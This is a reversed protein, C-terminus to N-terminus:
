QPSSSEQPIKSKEWKAVCMEIEDLRDSMDYKDYLWATLYSESPPTNESELWKYHEEIAAAIAKHLKFLNEYQEDTQQSPNKRLFEYLELAKHTTEEIFDIKDEPYM